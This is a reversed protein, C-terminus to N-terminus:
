IWAANLPSPNGGASSDSPLSVKRAAIELTLPKSSDLGDVRLFWWNPMGRDPDGAPTIRITQTTEDLSLVKASGSEFDTSVTLAAHLRIATFLIVGFLVRMKM